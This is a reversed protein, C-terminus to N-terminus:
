QRVILVKDIQRPPPAIICSKKYRPLFQPYVPLCMRSKKGLLEPCSEKPTAQSVCGIGQSCVPLCMRSKKGLLEPCSEKPTAQSACVIRKGQM